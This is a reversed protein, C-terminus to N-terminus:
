KKIEDFAEGLDIELDLLVEGDKDSDVKLVLKSGNFSFDVVKVGEVAEGRDVAEQIAESLHLNGSVVNEGDANPDVGFSLKGDKVEFNFKKNEESM